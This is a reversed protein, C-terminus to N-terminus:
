VDVSLHIMELNNPSSSEQFYRSFISMMCLLDENLNCSASKKDSVLPSLLYHFSM